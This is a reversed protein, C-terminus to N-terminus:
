NTSKDDMRGSDHADVHVVPQEIGLDGNALFPKIASLQPQADIHIGLRRGAARAELEARAEPQVEGGASAIARKVPVDFARAFALDRADHAPVGMVAGTGYDTLVIDGTLTNAKVPGIRDLM